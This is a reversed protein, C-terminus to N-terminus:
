PHKLVMYLHSGTAQESTAASPMVLAPRTTKLNFLGEVGTDALLYLREAFTRPTSFVVKRSERTVYRYRLMNEDVEETGQKQAFASVATVLFTVAVVLLRFINKNSQMQKNLIM